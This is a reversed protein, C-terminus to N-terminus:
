LKTIVLGSKGHGPKDMVEIKLEGQNTEVTIRHKWGATTATQMEKPKWGSLRMGVMPEVEGKMVRVKASYAVTLPENDTWKSAATAKAQKKTIKPKEDIGIVCCAVRPGANGNALSGADGGDGLDDEGGHVVMARGIITNDGWLMALADTSFYNAIGDEGADM